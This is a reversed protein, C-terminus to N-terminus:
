RSMWFVNVMFVANGLFALISFFILINNILGGTATRVSASQSSKSKDEDSDELRRNNTMGDNFANQQRTLVISSSITNKSFINEQGSSLRLENSSTKRLLAHLCFSITLCSLHVM